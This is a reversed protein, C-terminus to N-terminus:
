YYLIIISSLLLNINYIGDMPISNPLTGFKINDNYLWQKDNHIKLNYITVLITLFYLEQSKRHTVIPPEM